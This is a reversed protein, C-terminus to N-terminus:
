NGSGEPGENGGESGGEGGSTSSGVEAHMNFQVFNGSGPAPLTVNRVEGAQMDGPTTPGFETSKGAADYVHVEVKVQPSITTNMNELTGVFSESTEDFYLILNVGNVIENATAARDWMTGSEGAEGGLGEPSVNTKQCSITVLVLAILMPSIWFLRKM